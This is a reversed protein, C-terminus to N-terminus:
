RTSSLLGDQMLWRHQMREAISLDHTVVVLATNLERNLNLMLELMQTATQQDLNGTPEDALLCDPRTVLARALAVRQREGGSLEGPKHEARQALGVRELWAYAEAYASAAQQRRILLPMAINELASFEPLLHHFQYIFGLRQNRLRGLEAEALGTLSRGGVRIDGSSIHDLGGLLHMLTSKGAGSAGLIAHSEGAAVAFDIGKLVDVDLKGQRFRKCVSRAEIVPTDAIGSENM